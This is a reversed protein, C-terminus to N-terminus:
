QSTQEEQRQNLSSKVPIKVAKKAPPVAPIKPFRVPPLRPAMIPPINWPNKIVRNGASSTVM